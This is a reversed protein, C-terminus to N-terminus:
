YGGALVTLDIHFRVNVNVSFTTTLKHIAHMSHKHSSRRPRFLTKAHSSSFDASQLRVEGYREELFAIM